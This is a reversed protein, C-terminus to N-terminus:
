EPQCFINNEQSSEQLEPSSKPLATFKGGGAAHRVTPEKRTLWDQGVAKASMIYMTGPPLIKEWLQGIPKSDKFWHYCLPFAFPSPRFAYVTDSERDGHWGVGCKDPYSTSNLYCNVEAVDEVMEPRKFIKSLQSRISDLGPVQKFDHIGNMGDVPKKQVGNVLLTTRQAHRNQIQKKRPSFVKTDFEVNELLHNHISQSLSEQTANPNTHSRSDFFALADYVIFLEAELKYTQKEPPLLEHLKVREYNMYGAQKLHNELAHFDYLSFGVAEHGVVLSSTPHPHGKNRVTITFSKRDAQAWVKDKAEHQALLAKIKRADESLPTKNLNTTQSSEQSIMNSKINEFDNVVNPDLVGTPAEALVQAVIANGKRKANDKETAAVDPVSFQSWQFTLRPYFIHCSLPPLDFAPVKDLICHLIFGKTWLWQQVKQPVDYISQERKACFINKLAKDQEQTNLTVHTETSHLNLPLDLVKACAMIYDAFVQAELRVFAAIKGEM